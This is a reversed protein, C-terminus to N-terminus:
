VGSCLRCPHTTCLSYILATDSSHILIPINAKEKPRICAHTACDIFGLWIVGPVNWFPVYLKGPLTESPPDPVAATKFEITLAQECGPLSAAECIIAALDRRGTVPPIM